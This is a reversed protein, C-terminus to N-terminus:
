FIYARNPHLFKLDLVLMSLFFIAHFNVRASNLRIRFSDMHLKKVM